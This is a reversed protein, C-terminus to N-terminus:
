TGKSALVTLIGLVESLVMPDVEELRLAKRVDAIGCDEPFGSVFFASEMRVSDGCGYGERIIATVNAEPFRKYHGLATRAGGLRNLMWDHSKLIGNYLQVPVEPGSFRALETRREEGPQLQHIRRGLQPFPPIIEYDAFVESWKARDEESLQLPHVIGVRVGGLTYATDDVDAYTRDETVRFAATLRGDETYDAWLLLRAVHFLFPHGVIYKEFEARSWRRRTVMARELRKAQVKVTESVQKKLLKWDRAAAQVRLPDDKAGAKPLSSKTKGQDDRILPKLNPGFVLRFQRSGYDITRSGREDLALDPVIRDELQLASLGRETAIEGMFRRANRQLAPFKVKQSIGNLQMLATDSGIARLAELALSARQSFGRGPWDRIFPTMKLATADGGLLGAATIGWKVEGTDTREACLEFLRAAFADLSSADFQEKVKEILPLPGGLSSKRLAILLEGVQVDNLRRDGMTIPPLDALDPWLPPQVSRYGLSDSVVQAWWPPQGAEFPMM